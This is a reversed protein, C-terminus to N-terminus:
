RNSNQEFQKEIESRSNLRAKAEHFARTDVPINFDNWFDKDYKMRVKYIDLDEKLHNIFRMNRGYGADYTIFEEFLTLKGIDNYLTDTIYWDQVLSQHSKILKDNFDKYRISVITSLHFFKISDNPHQMKYSYNNLYNMRLIAFDYKRILVNGEFKLLGTDKLCFTINYVLSSDLWTVNEIKFDWSDFVDIDFINERYRIPDYLCDALYNNTEEWRYNRFDFTKRLQNIKAYSGRKKHFGKDFVSVSAELYRVFDENERFATRFYGNFHYEESPYNDVIREIALEVISRGSIKSTVEVRDIFYTQKELRIEVLGNGTLKKIPENRTKYGISSFILTDNIYIPDIKFLVKGEENTITGPKEGKIFLHVYPVPLSTEDDIVILNITIKNTQCFLTASTFLFVIVLFVRM